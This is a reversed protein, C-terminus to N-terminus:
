QEGESCTQRSRWRPQAMTVAGLSPLVYQTGKVLLEWLTNEASRFRCSPSPHRSGMTNAARTNRLRPLSRTCSGAISNSPSREELPWALDANKGLSPRGKLFEKKVGQRLAWSHGPRPQTGKMKGEGVGKAPLVRPLRFIQAWTFFSTYHRLYCRNM